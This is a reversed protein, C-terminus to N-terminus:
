SKTPPLPFGLVSLNLVHGGTVLYVTESMGGLQRVLAGLRDRFTRGLPYAPVVGWGTEEAVFLLDAEVFPLVALLELQIKQWSLDDQELFNAVWTGLSDILICTHPRAHRLIDSLEVPAHLTVWDQPRREQHKQIRQQWEPDDPNDTATAIYIVPKGSEMALHEAWESKGSRSPGTILIVRSM